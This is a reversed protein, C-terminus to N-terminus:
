IKNQYKKHCFVDKLDDDGFQDLSNCQHYTLPSTLNASFTETQGKATMRYIANLNTFVTIYLIM